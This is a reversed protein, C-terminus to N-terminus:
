IEILAVKRVIM